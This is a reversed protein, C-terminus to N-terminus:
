EPQAEQLLDVYAKEVLHDQPIGLGAAIVVPGTDAIQGAARRVAALDAVRAKIEANWNM